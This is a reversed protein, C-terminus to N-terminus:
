DHVRVSVQIHSLDVEPEPGSFAVPVLTVFVSSGKAAAARVADNATVYRTMLIHPREAPPTGYGYVYVSGAYGADLSRATEADAAPNNVFVRLEFSPGAQEIGALVIDARGSPLRGQTNPPIAISAIVRRPLTM